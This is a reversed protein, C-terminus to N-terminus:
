YPFDDEGGCDDEAVDRALLLEFLLAGV